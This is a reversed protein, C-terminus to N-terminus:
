LCMLVRTNGENNVQLKMMDRNLLYNELVLKCTYVMLKAPAFLSNIICYFITLMRMILKNLKQFLSLYFLCVYNYSNRCTRFIKPAQDVAFYKLSFILLKYLTDVLQSNLMVCLGTWNSSASSIFM